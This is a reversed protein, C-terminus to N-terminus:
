APSGIAARAARAPDNAVLADVGLAVVARVHDPEDVTWTRVTLGADHADAVLGPDQLLHVGPHIAGAGMGVAYGVPDVLGDGLLVAVHEAPVEGILPLLTPHHFSSFVTRGLMGAARVAALAELAIGPYRERNTKLEINVQLSSPRLLDLVEPLTPIRVGAFAADGASADLARLEDLTHDVVRGAAGTTRALTEDHIVVLHGDATRQVDFEVGVAGADIAREFAPLTNEPAVASAGRHAWIETM